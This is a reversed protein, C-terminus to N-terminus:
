TETDAIQVHKGSDKVHLDVQPFPIVIGAEKFARWIELNTWSRSILKETADAIWTWLELLIGSDQFDVVRVRAEPMNLSYPNNKAVSLLVNQAKDLDDEYSVQVPNVIVVRRDEYSYNHISNGVLKNNPVIITENTLTNIITSRLRIHVVDGELGNVLIRDGEKIPREFIIVLGAFFNSVMNQLGFGVGIGLVGFLVALSSLNIGIFSLGVLLVLVLVGYRVLSSITFKLADDVTMKSFVAADLFRKSTRAVWSALYFIPIALLITIVSIRSNGATWLPSRLVAWIAALYKEIETEFFGILIILFGILVVVRLVLRTYRYAKKKNEEKIKLPRIVLRRVLFLLLKYCFFLLGLPLLFRLIAQLPTFFLRTEGIQVPARM